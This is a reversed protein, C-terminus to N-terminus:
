EGRTNVENIIDLVNSIEQAKKFCDLINREKYINLYKDRTFELYEIFLAEKNKLLIPGYKIEIDSYSNHHKCDFVVIEYYHGEKVIKENIITYNNESIFRRLEEVDKNVQIIFKYKFIDKDKLIDAVTYYGMGAITIIDVDDKVDDIGNSLIPIVKDELKYEKIAEKARNLPGIKNDVAYAKPCINEKVLFCPLLGHDSGVDYVVKNEDVLKAIELLRKSLM